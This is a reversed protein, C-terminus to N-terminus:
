LFILHMKKCAQVNKRVNPETGHPDVELIWTIRNEAVHRGVAM